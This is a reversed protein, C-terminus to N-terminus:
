LYKQNLQIKLTHLRSQTKGNWSFMKGFNTTQPKALQLVYDDGFDVLNRHFDKGFNAVFINIWSQLGTLLKRIWTCKLSSIFAELNIM